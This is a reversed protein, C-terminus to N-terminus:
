KPIALIEGAGKNAVYVYTADVAVSEPERLDALMVDPAPQSGDKKIRKLAHSTDWSAWYVYAADLALLDNNHQGRTITQASGGSKPVRRITGDDECPWYVFSEDIAIGVPHPQASALVTEGGGPTKSARVVVGRAYDAVYLYKADVALAGSKIGPARVIESPGGALPARRIPSGDFLSFYLSTGDSVLQIVDEPAEAITKAAGGAKPVRVIRDKDTQRNSPSVGFVVDNGDLVISMAHGQTADWLVRAPSSGDKVQAHVLGAGDSFYANAGDLVVEFIALPHAFPSPTSPRLVRARAPLARASPPPVASSRAPPTAGVAASTIAAASVNIAPPPDATPTPPAPRTCAVLVFPVIVSRKM